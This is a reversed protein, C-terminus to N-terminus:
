IRSEPRAGSPFIARRGFRIQRGNRAKSPDRPRRYDVGSNRTESKDSPKVSKAPPPPGGFIFGSPYEKLRSMTEDFTQFPKKADLPDRYFDFGTIRGQQPQDKLASTLLAAALIKRM